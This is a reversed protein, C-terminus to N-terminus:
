KTITLQNALYIIEQKTLDFHQAFRYITRLESSDVRGDAVAILLSNKVTRIAEKKGFRREQAEALARNVLEEVVVENGNARISTDLESFFDRSDVEGAVLKQIAEVEERDLTGDALAVAVGLYFVIFGSEMAEEDFLDPYIGRVLADVRGNLEERGALFEGYPIAQGIQRLLACGDLEALIRLRLPTLPHTSVVSEVVSQSLSEYQHIAQEVLQGSSWGSFVEGSLGTTYKLLAMQAARADRGNAAYGLIDCSIECCIAWRMLNAKLEPLKSCDMATDLVAKRPVTVHGLMSHALEHGLISAREVDDLHNVFHQSVLIILEDPASRDDFSFKPMCMASASPFEHLFLHVPFGVDLRERVEDIVGPISAMRDIRVAQSLFGYFEEEQNEIKEELRDVAARAQDIQPRIRRFFLDERLYRVARPEVVIETPPPPPVTQVM